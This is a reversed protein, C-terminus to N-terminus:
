LETASFSDIPGNSGGNAEAIGPQGSTVVTSSDTYTGRLVGNQYVSLMASVSGTVTLTITDGASISLSSIISLGSVSTHSSGSLQTIIITTSSDVVAGYGADLTSNGRVIVVQGGVSAGLVISASQDDAFTPSSVVAAAGTGDGSNPDNIVNSTIQLDNWSGAGSSWIGVSDSMTTSMPNADTRNFTDSVSLLNRLNSANFGSGGRINRDLGAGFRSSVQASATTVLVLFLLLYKM